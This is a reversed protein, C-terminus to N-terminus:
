IQWVEEGALISALTQPFSTQHIPKAILGNFGAEKLVKVEDTTVSATMALIPITQYDPQSRIISLMAFGDLPYMHIDLFILTPKPSLHNLTTTFDAVEGLIIYTPLKLDDGLLIEMILRCEPDDDVYLVVLDDMM